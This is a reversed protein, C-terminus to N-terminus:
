YSKLHFGLLAVREGGDSRERTGTRSKDCCVCVLFLSLPVFVSEYEAFM